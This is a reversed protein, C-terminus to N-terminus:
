IVRSNCLLAWDLSVIRLSVCDIAALFRRTKTSYLM